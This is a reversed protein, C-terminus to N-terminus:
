TVNAVAARVPTHLHLPLGGGHRELVALGQAMTVAARETTSLWSDLVRVWDVELGNPEPIIGPVDRGNRVALLIDISNPCDKVHLFEPVPAVTAVPHSASPSM